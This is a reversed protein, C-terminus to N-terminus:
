ITIFTHQQYWTKESFDSSIHDKLRVNCTSDRDNRQKLLDNISPAWIVPM